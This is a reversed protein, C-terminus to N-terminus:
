FRRIADLILGINKALLYHLLVATLGFTWAATAGVYDYVSGAGASHILIDNNLFDTNCQMMQITKNTLLAANTNTNKTSYTILGTTNVTQATIAELGANSAIVGNNNIHRPYVSGLVDYMAANVNSHCAYQGFGGLYGIAM